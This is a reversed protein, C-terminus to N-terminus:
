IYLSIFNFSISKRLINKNKNPEVSHQLWSPFIYLTNNSPELAIKETNYKTNHHLTRPNWDYNIYSCPHHLLLRGTNEGTSLYLVGSLTVGPHTHTENHDGYANENYWANDLRVKHLGIDNCFINAHRELEEKYLLPIVIDKQIGSGSASRDSGMEKVPIAETTSSYFPIEFM